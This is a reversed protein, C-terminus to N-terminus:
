EPPIESNLYVNERWKSNKLKNCIESNELRVYWTAEPLSYSYNKTIPVEYSYNSKGYVTENLGYNASYNSSGYITETTTISESFTRGGEVGVVVFCDHGESVSLEAARHLIAKNVDDISLDFFVNNPDYGRCYVEWIETNDNSLDPRLRVRTQAQACSDIMLVVTLLLLVFAIKSLYKSM